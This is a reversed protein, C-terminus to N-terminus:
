RGWCDKSTLGEAQGVLGIAGTQDLTFSGCKDAAMLSDAKPTATLSFGTDTLTATIGYYDNGTSLDPANSYVGAKSHYRELQQAQETLLVAIESRHPKKMYETISPLSLTLVLGIIAIVIMIEILTLGQNSRRM